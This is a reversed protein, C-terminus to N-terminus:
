AAARRQALRVSDAQSMMILNSLKVDRKNGNKTTICMGHPIRGKFHLWMIRKATAMVKIKKGKQDHFNFQYTGNNDVKMLKGDRTLVGNKTFAYIGKIKEYALEEVSKNFVKKEAPM